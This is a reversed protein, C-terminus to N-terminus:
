GSQQMCVVPPWRGHVYTTATKCAPEASNLGRRPHQHRRLGFCLWCPEQQSEQLSCHRRACRKSGRVQYIRRGARLLSRQWGWLVVAACHAPVHTVQVSFKSGAAKRPPLAMCSLIRCCTGGLCFATCGKQTDRKDLM